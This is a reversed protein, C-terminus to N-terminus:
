YNLRKEASGLYLIGLLLTKTSLGVFNEQLFPNKNGARFHSAM